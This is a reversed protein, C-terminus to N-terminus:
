KKAVLFYHYTPHKSTDIGYIKKIQEIENKTNIFVKKVKYKKFGAMKMAKNITAKTQFCQWQGTDHVRFGKRDIRPSTGYIKMSEITTEFSPLFAILKGPSKLVRYVEKFMVVADKRKEPLISNVSVVYSFTDSNFPINRSDAIKYKLRPHSFLSAAISLMKKNIDTAVVINGTKILDRNLYPTSGTGLNIIEGKKIEFLIQRRREPTKTLSLVKEDYDEAFKDWVKNKM